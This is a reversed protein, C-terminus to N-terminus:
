EHLVVSLHAFLNVLSDTDIKIAHFLNLRTTRLLLLASVEKNQRQPLERM